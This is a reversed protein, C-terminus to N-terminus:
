KHKQASFFIGPFDTCYKDDVSEPLFNDLFEQFAKDIIDKSKDMDMIFPKTCAENMQKVINMRDEKNHAIKHVYSIRVDKALLEGTKFVTMPVENNKIPLSLCEINRMLLPCGTKKLNYKDVVRQLHSGLMSFYSEAVEGTGYEVDVLLGGPRLQSCIMTMIEKWLINSYDEIEQNFKSFGNIYFISSYSQHSWNQPPYCFCSMGFILDMSNSPLSKSYFSNHSSFILVNKGKFEEICVKMQTENLSLDILYIEVTLEPKKAIVKEVVIKLFGINANPGCGFGAIKFNEKTDLRDKINVLYEDMTEETIKLAHQENPWLGSIYSDGIRNDNDNVFDM